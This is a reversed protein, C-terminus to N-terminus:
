YFHLLFAPFCDYSCFCQEEVLIPVFIAQYCRFVQKVVFTYLAKMLLISCLLFHLLYYYYYYYNVIIVIIFDSEIFSFLLSQDHKWRERIEKFAILFFLSCKYFALDPILSLMLLDSLIVVSILSLKVRIIYVCFDFHILDM